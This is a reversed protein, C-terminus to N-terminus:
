YILKYFLHVSPNRESLIIILEETFSDWYMSQTRQFTNWPHSLSDTCMFIGTSCNVVFVFPRGRGKKKKKKKKKKSLLTHSISPIAMKWKSREILKPPQYVSRFWFNILEFYDFVSLKSNQTCFVCLVLVFLFFEIDREKASFRVLLQFAAESCM